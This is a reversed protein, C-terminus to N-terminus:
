PNPLAALCEAALRAAADMYVSDEQVLRRHQEARVQSTSQPLELVQAVQQHTMGALDRLLGVRLIPWASRPQKRGPICTWGPRAKMAKRVRDLITRVDVHALGPKTQDALAAKRKMWALVRSPASAVLDDLHDDETAPSTIRANVVEREIATRPFGFVRRYRDAREAPAADGLREDVWSTDLWQPRRTAAYLAASGYPYAISEFALRARPANQDIYRVLIFRYLFSTVPRSRFRGRFLSGDRRRTRNFYRVYRNLVRRMVGSLDGQPSAVLLHFHTTLIAFAQIKLKGSRAERALLSLFYRVDRRNEFVTRRAVGRNMVHHFRGPRDFRPRRSM